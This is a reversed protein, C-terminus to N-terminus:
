PSRWQDDGRGPSRRRGPGFWRRPLFAVAMATFPALIAWAFGNLDGQILLDGGPGPLASLQSAAFAGVAAGFAGVLGAMARSALAWGLVGAVAVVLGLPFFDVPGLRVGARHWIGLLGTVLGSVLGCGLGRLVTAVM